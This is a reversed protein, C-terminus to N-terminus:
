NKAEDVLEDMSLDFGNAEMVSLCYEDFEGPLFLLKQLAEEAGMVHLADQFAAEKLPPYVTCEAALMTMYKNNDFDETYKGRKGAIPVKKTCKKRIEDNKKPTIPKVEWEVPVGDVAYRESAVIKVTEDHQCGEIFVSFDSKSM